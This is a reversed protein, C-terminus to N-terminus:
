SNRHPYDTGPAPGLPQGLVATGPRVSCARQFTAIAPSPTNRALTVLIPQVTIGPEVGATTLGAYQRESAASFLSAPALTVADSSAVLALCASLSNMRYRPPNAALAPIATFLRNEAFYRSPLALPFENLRDHSPRITMPHGSRVVFVLREEPLAFARLASAHPSAAYNAEDGIAVDCEGTAVDRYVDSSGVVVDVHLDPHSSALAALSRPVTTEAALAIASLRIAGIDGGAILRAEDEFSALTRLVEDARGILHRAADTPRVFRTTRHFLRVGLERELRQVNKTLASQSIALSEAAARFSEARYVAVFQTVLRHELM